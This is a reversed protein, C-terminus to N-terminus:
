ASWPLLDDETWFQYEEDEAVQEDYVIGVLRDIEAREDADSQEPMENAPLAYFADLLDYPRM